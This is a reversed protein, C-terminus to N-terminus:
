PNRRPLEGPLPTPPLVVPPTLIRAGQPTIEIEIVRGTTALGDFQSRPVLGRTPMTAPPQWTTLAQGNTPLQGNTFTGLAYGAPLNQWSQGDWVMAHGIPITGQQYNGYDGHTAQSQCAGESDGGGRHRRCRRGFADADTSFALIAAVALVLSFYRM